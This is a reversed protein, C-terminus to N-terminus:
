ALPVATWDLERGTWGLDLSPAPDPKAMLHPVTYLLRSRLWIGCLIYSCALLANVSAGSGAWARGDFRVAGCRV